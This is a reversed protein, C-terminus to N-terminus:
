PVVRGQEADRKELKAMNAEMVDALTWGYAQAIVTLYHLVDGLELKLAERPHKDDRYHKKLLEGAKGSAVALNLVAEVTEGTEGALGMTAILWHRTGPTTDHGRSNWRCAVWSQFEMETRM